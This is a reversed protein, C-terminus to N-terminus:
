LAYVYRVFFESKKDIQEDLTCEVSTGDIFEEVLYEPM